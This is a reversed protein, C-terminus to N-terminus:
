ERGIIGQAQNSRQSVWRGFLKFKQLSVRSMEGREKQRILCRAAEATTQAPSERSDKQEHRPKKCLTSFSQFVAYKFQLDEDRRKKLVKFEGRRLCPDIAFRAAEHDRHCFAPLTSTHLQVNLRQISNFRYLQPHCM